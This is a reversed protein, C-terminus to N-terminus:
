LGKKMLEAMQKELEIKKNSILEAFKDTNIANIISELSKSIESNLDPM